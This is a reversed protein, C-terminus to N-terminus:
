KNVFEFGWYGKDNKVLKIVADFEKGTKKSKMGKITVTKGALFKKAAAATLKKGLSEFWRDNKWLAFKCPAAKDQYGTCSYAKPTEVVDRGCEPCKGISEVAKSIQGSTGQLRKIGDTVSQRVATMFDAPRCSGTEIDKLQRELRGTFDPELMDKLPFVEVLGIGLGAISYNKGKLQVYGVKEIKKLVEARTASTGISYGKLIQSEDEVYKGCNQMAALLTKVTYKKPPKTEKNKTKLDKVTATMGESLTFALETEEADEDKDDEAPKDQYLAQWGSVALTRARTRFQYKEVETIAEMFNYEAAPAFQACFRKVIEIYVIKEDALLASLEPILYTPMLAPHSDVKSSDFVSKKDHWVLAIKPPILAQNSGKLAELVRRSPEKQSDDLYRSATRPYTIHKGEYLAQACKLVKEATFGEFKSTIYGQLDTLNFLKEPGKTERKTTCSIVKGRKGQTINKINEFIKENDFQTKKDQIYLGEYEGKDTTFTASLLFYKKPIFNKIEMDRKYILFVTPLIVRGINLMAGDKSFLKTAAVTYNIGFLWDAQQRAYGAATLPRDLAGERIGRFAEKLDEPTHSSVWLRKVPKNTGTAAYIEAFILSGERDSDCANIIETIAPQIALDKILKFQKKVGADDHIKYQFKAPIIPLNALAWTSYKADYDKADYLSFLHGFAFTILYNNGEFYGDQRKNAGLTEAITKAVSPKEAIILQM